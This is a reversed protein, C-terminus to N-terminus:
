RRRFAILAALLAWAYSPAANGVQTCGVAESTMEDYQGPYLAALGSLDDAALTRKSTEFPPASPYMVVSRDVENHMLGLAHGIEHTIANQIDDVPYSAQRLAQPEVVGFTRQEANLAIDADIIENTRHDITVITAAIIEDGYPWDTLVLIDNQNQINESRFGMSQARGLAHTLHLGPTSQAFQDVAATVADIAPQNGLRSLSASDVVFSLRDKWRVIQGESDRRLEYAGAPFALTLAGAVLLYIRSAFSM